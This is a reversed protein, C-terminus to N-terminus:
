IIEGSLYRWNPNAGENLRIKWERKWAKLAKERTIASIIGERRLSRAHSTIDIKM